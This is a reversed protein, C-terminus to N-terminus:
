RWVCLVTCLWYCLCLSFWSACTMMQGDLNSCNRVTFTGVRQLVPQCEDFCALLKSKHVMSVAGETKLMALVEPTMARKEGAVAAAAFAAFLTLACVVSLCSAFLLAISLIITVTSYEYSNGIANKCMNCAKM